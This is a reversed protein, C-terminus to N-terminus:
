SVMMKTLDIFAEEVNQGTKASTTLIRWGRKEFGNVDEFTMEWRDSLDVKNILLIFPVDKGIAEDALQKIKEVTELTSRRTGDMVLLYGSSGKLYSTPIKQFEDEGHIDWVLLTIDAGNYRVAKQDIKVGVTTLYKDSFKSHVFQQVLSTKGVAFSGLLCIKKKIM